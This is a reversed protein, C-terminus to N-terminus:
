GQSKCSECQHPRCWTDVPTAQTPLLLWEEDHAQSGMNGLHKTNGHSDQPLREGQLEAEACSNVWNHPDVRLGSPQCLTHPTISTEVTHIGAGAKSRLYCLWRLMPALIDVREM